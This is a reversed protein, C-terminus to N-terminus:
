CWLTLKKPRLQTPPSDTVRTSYAEPSLNTILDLATISNDGELHIHAVLVLHKLRITLDTDENPKIHVFIAKVYNLEYLHLLELEIELSWKRLM